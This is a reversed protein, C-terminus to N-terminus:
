IRQADLHLFLSALNSAVCRVVGYCGGVYNLCLSVRHLPPSPSSLPPRSLFLPSELLALPFTPFPVALACRITAHPALSM